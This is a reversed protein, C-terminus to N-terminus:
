VYIRRRGQRDYMFVGDVKVIPFLICYFPKLSFRPMGEEKETVQVACKGDKRLFVCKNNYAETSVCKGSPFDPDQEETNDFWRERDKIQTEDLHKEILHGHALIRDRESPDLYVGHRCCLSTCTNPGDKEEFGNTFITPDFKLGSIEIEHDSM